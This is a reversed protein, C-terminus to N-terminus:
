QVPNDFFLKFISQLCWYPLRQSSRSVGHWAYGPCRRAVQNFKIIRKFYWNYASAARHESSGLIITNVTSWVFVTQDYADMHTLKEVTNGTYRYLTSHYRNCVTNGNLLNVPLSRECLPIQDRPLSGMNLREIVSEHNEICYPLINDKVSNTYDELDPPCNLENFADCVRPACQIDITKINNQTNVDCDTEIDFDGAWYPNILEPRNNLFASLM